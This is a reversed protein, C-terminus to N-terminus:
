DVITEGAQFAKFDRKDAGLIGSGKDQWSAKAFSEM